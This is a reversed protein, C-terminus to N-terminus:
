APGFEIVGYWRGGGDGEEGREEGEGGMNLSWTGEGIPDVFGEGHVGYQGLAKNSSVVVVCM